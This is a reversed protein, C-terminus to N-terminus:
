YWLELDSVCHMGVHSFVRVSFNLLVDARACELRKIMVKVGWGLIEGM